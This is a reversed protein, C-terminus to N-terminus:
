RMKQCTMIYLCLMPRILVKHAMGCLSQAKIRCDELENKKYVFMQEFKHM